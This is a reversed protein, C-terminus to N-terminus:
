AVPELVEAVDEAVRMFATVVAHMEPRDDLCGSSLIEAATYHCDDVKSILESMVMNLENQEM